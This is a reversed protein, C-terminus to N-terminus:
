QRSISRLGLGLQRIGRWGLSRWLSEGGHTALLRRFLDPQAALLHLFRRRVAPRAEAALLLRIFRYPRRTLRRVAAPYSRLDDRALCAALELAEGFAIGLGEGTIADRYGAADGVLVTHGRWLKRPRQDFPGAGQDRSSTTSDALRRALDPFRLLLSDFDSKEGSWLMAVGVEEDSAGWVYAECGDAWSVEVDNSWPECRYHRRVGFRARRRSAQALGSWLRVRSHLGDAGVLWRGSIEGADTQVCSDELGRVPTGWAFRVGLSTARAVLLRHLVPRRMAVGQVGPFDARVSVGDGLYRIGRFPRGEASADIGLRALAEVGAPMVGEGCAKDIPPTARDIVLVDLGHQRVAIATALGAPGGGVILVDHLPSRTM